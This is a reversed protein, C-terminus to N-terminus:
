VFLLFLFAPTAIVIDSLASKMVLLKGSSFLPKEYNLLFFYYDYIYICRIVSNLICSIFCVFPSISLEVIMTPSKLM